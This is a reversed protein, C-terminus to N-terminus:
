VYHKETLIQNRPHTRHEVVQVQFRVEVAVVQLAAEGVELHYHVEVTGLHVLRCELALYGLHMHLM